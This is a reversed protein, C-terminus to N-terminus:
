KGSTLENRSKVHATKFFCFFVIDGIGGKLNLTVNQANRKINLITAGRALRRMTSKSWIESITQHNCRPLSSVIETVPDFIVATFCRTKASYKRGTVMQPM